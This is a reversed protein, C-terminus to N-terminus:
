RRPEQVLAAISRGGLNFLSEFRGRVKTTVGEAPIGAGQSIVFISGTGDDIEFGGTGLVGAARTVEGEVTVDRGDYRQPEALLDGISTVSACGACLLVLLLAGRRLLPPVSPRRLM